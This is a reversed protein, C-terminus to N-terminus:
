KRVEELLERSLSESCSWGKSTIVSILKDDVTKRAVLFISHAHFEDGKFYNVLRENAQTYVGFSPTVSYFVATSAASLDVGENAVRTQLLLIDSGHKSRWSSLISRRRQPPDAGTISSVDKKRSSLYGEVMHLEFNYDFWVVVKEGALEGELLNNLEEVKGLWPKPTVGGLLKRLELWATSAWITSFDSEKDLFKTRIENYRRRVRIPIELYRITRTRMVEVEPVAEKGMVLSNEHLWQKFRPRFNAKPIWRYLPREFNAYRFQYYNSFGMMGGRLFEMQCFLDLMSEPIPNGSIIIRKKVDRFNNCYFQTVQAKPNKLWTSEDWVVARWKRGVLHHAMGERLFSEKNTIYICDDPVGDMSIMDRWGDLAPNPAVVLTPYLNLRELGRLTPLVKGLRMRAFLAPHEEGMVYELMKEQHPRLAYRM